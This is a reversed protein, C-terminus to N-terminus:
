VWVTVAVWIPVEVFVSAVVSVVVIIVVIASCADFVGFLAQAKLAPTAVITRAATRIM